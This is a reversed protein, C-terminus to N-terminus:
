FGMSKCLGDVSSSCTVKGPNDSHDLWVKYTFLAKQMADTYKTITTGNKIGGYFFLNYTAGAYLDAVFNDCSLLYKSSASEKCGPYTILAKMWYDPYQGNELYYLEVSNKLVKAATIVEAFRAKAVAKQYQPLAVAALIGIILVVVLLEILTVGGNNWLSTMAFKIQLRGCVSNVFLLGRQFDEILNLIIPRFKKM